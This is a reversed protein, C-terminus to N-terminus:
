NWICKRFITEFTHVSSALDKRFIFPKGSTTNSFAASLCLLVELLILATLM